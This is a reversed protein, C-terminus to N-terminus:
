AAMAPSQPLGGLTFSFTAGKDVEAEAWIRGGHRQVIRQVIALGVGTGEYDETRHLRQFVGFLKGAYQMDFGAGNDRVSYVPEGDEGLRAAVEIRAPARGKTYKIANGILNIFVQELLAPDGRCEPLDLVTLEVQRGEVAPALLDLANHVVARTDVAQTKLPQRGLRSFRLLDDVLQGMQRANAAVRDLYHRGEEPIQQAYTELLIGVFGDIGRLPARLDHSVTYTFAELEQNTADREAVRQQLEANLKRIADETRRAATVDRFVSIGGALEGNIRLPSSTVSLWLGDPAGAHRVFLNAQQISEGRMAHAMPLDAPPYRTEMDPLFLGYKESWESPAAGEVAKMGIIREAAPNFTLNGAADAVAIGDAINDLVAQTVAARRAVEANLGRIQEADRDRRRLALIVLAAGALLVLGLIGTILLVTNRLQTVQAFAISAKREVLVTWGIDAVPAYASLVEDQGTAQQAQGSRDILAAGVRRDTALSTLVTPVTGTKGVIVGRQDTVTLSLGEATSFRATLASLTDLKIAMVLIGLLGRTGRSDGWVPVSVAVVLPHSEWLSRYAESVYPEGTTVAGRYWDRYSLDQGVVGADFPEIDVIRGTRDSVFSYAILLDTQNLQKLQDTIVVRNFDVPNGDALAARLSPRAAFSATLGALGQMQDRVFLSSVAASNTLQGQVQNRIAQASITLTSFALFFLSVTGLLLYFAVPRWGTVAALLKLSRM